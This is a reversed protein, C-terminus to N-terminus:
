LTKSISSLGAGEGQDEAGPAPCRRAGERRPSVLSAVWSLAGSARPDSFCGRSCDGARTGGWMVGEADRAARRPHQRDVRFVPEVDAAVAVVRIRASPITRAAPRSSRTRRNSASAAPLVPRRHEEQTPDRPAVRAEHAFGAPPAVLDANMPIKVAPDILHGRGLKAFVQEPGPLRDLLGRLQRRAGVAGGLPRNAVGRGGREGLQGRRSEPAVRRHHGHRREAARVVGPVVGCRACPQDIVSSGGNVPRM